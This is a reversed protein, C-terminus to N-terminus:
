PFSMRAHEIGVDIITKADEIKIDGRAAAELAAAIVAELKAWTDVNFSQMISDTVPNTDPIKM